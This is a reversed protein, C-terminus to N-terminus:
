TDPLVYETDPLVDSADPLVDETDPLVDETDPLADDTDPLVDRTIQYRMQQTQYRVKTDQLVHRGDLLAVHSIKQRAPYPPDIRFHFSVSKSLPSIITVTTYYVLSSPAFKKSPNGKPGACCHVHQCCSM